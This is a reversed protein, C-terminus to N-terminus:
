PTVPPVDVIASGSETDVGITAVANAEALTQGEKRVLLKVVPMLQPGRTPIFTISRQADFDLTIITTEGEVVDFGGVLRLKGSPVTAQRVGALITVQASVVELRIQQYRGVELTATGLIDEIGDLQLLDFEHPGEVVTQWGSEGDGGSRNVEINQVTLVIASPVDTPQDTVRVELTGLAGPTAQPAVTATPPVSTAVSQSPTSAGDSGCAAAVMALIVLIPFLAWARKFRGTSSM